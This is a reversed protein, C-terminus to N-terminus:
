LVYVCLVDQYEVYIYLIFNLLKYYMIVIISTEGLSLQNRSLVETLLQCYSVCFWKKSNKFYQIYFIGPLNRLILVTCVARYAHKNIVIPTGFPPPVRLKDNHKVTLLLPLRFEITCRQVKQKISFNCDHRVTVTASATVTRWIVKENM